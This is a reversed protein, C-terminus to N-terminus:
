VIEPSRQPPGDWHRSLTSLQWNVAVDVKAASVQLQSIQGVEALGQVPQSLWFDIGCGTGPTFPWVV